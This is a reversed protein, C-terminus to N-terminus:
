IPSRETKPKQMMEDFVKNWSEIMNNISYLEKARARCEGPMGKLFGPEHLCKMGLLFSREDWAIIGSKCNEVILKEAPNDMVVPVVGACMAEGLAIECTGYHDPRLPYAFVDMEALYPAVDDVKGHFTFEPYCPNIQPPEGLLTFRSDPISKKIKLFLKMTNELDMKKSLVTGINFGEHPKPEIALFRDMNGTSWIYESHNQVPSTGIFKDPYMSEQASVPYNKHCWFAMRSEPLTRSFLEVLMPHDWYHVLVIDADRLPTEDIYTYIPLNRKIAKENIFDLCWVEHDQSKDKEIWDMIVTGVGGGLHPTIHLVKM